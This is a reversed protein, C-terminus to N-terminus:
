QLLFITMVAVWLGAQLVLDGIWLFYSAVRERLYLLFGLTTNFALFIAGILALYFIHAASATLLVEGAENFRLAIEPPLFPYRWCLLGVLLLLLLASGGLVSLALWDKWIAWDLFVPHSSQEVVEQTAGMELRERFAALFGELDAPSIAYALEETRIIVQRDLATTAYFLIPGIEAAEGLGVFHGPWQFGRRLRARQLEAGSHVERVSALPIQHQNGGWRITVANRDMAYSANLLGWLWYVLLLSVLLAALALLGLVFTLWSVPQLAAIVIFGITALLLVVVFTLGLRWGKHIDLEWITM